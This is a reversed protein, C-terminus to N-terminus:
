SQINLTLAWLEDATTLTRSSSQLARQGRILATMQGALDVNSNELYSQGLHGFEGSGPLGEVPPGSAQSPFYLNNGIHSLSEPNIFRYLRIEGLRVMGAAFADDSELYAPEEARDVLSPAFIIGEPTVSLSSLDIKGDQEQLNLPPDLRIGGPLTLNGERDLSFGGDRTYAYNGDPRIVRFFGEGLIALDLNRGTYAPSGQEMCPSTNSIAVGRGSLPPTVPSGAQPLRREAIERYTLEYFSVQREKFSVTNVNAINHATVDLLQQQARIGATCQGISKLM